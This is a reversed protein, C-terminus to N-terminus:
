LDSLSPILEDIPAFM